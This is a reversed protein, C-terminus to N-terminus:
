SLFVEQTCNAKIKNVWFVKKGKKHMLKNTYTFGCSGESVQGDYSWILEMDGSSQCHLELESAPRTRCLSACAARGPPERCVCLGLEGDYGRYDEASQCM